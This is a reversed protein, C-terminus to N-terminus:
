KVKVTVTITKSYSGCTAKVKVKYTGKKLGKKAYVKGAKSVSIYKKAAAKGYSTVKYSVTPMAVSFAKTKALKKTKKSAKYTKTTSKVNKLTAKQLAKLQAQLKAAQNKAATAEAKDAAAQAQSDTVNQELNSVQDKLQDIVEKNASDTANQASDFTRGKLESVSHTKIIGEAISDVSDKNALYYLNGATIIDNMRQEFNAKDITGVQAQNTSLSVGYCTSDVIDQLAGDTIHWVNKAWYAMVDTLNLLEPYLFCEGVLSLVVNECGQAYYVGFLSAPWNYCLDAAKMGKARAAAQANTLGEMNESPTAPKGASATALYTSVNNGAPADTVLVADANQVIQDATYWCVYDGENVNKNSVVGEWADQATPLGKETIDDAIAAIAASFRGGYNNADYNNTQKAHVKRVAYHQTDPDYGCVVAVTAKKAKGAAIQSLVYYQTGKVTDEYPIVVDHTNPGEAYRTALTYNGNKDKSDMILKDCTQAMSYLSETMTYISGSSLSFNTYIPNYATTHPRNERQNELEVWQAYTYRTKDEPDQGVLPASGTATSYSSGVLINTEMYIERPINYQTTTEGSTISTAITASGCSMKDVPVEAGNLSACYNYLYTDPNVNADSGFLGYQTETNGGSVITRGLMTNNVGLLSYYPQNMPPQAKCVSLYEQTYENGKADTLTKTIEMPQTPLNYTVNGKDDLNVAALATAPMMSGALALTMGAVLVRKGIRNRM